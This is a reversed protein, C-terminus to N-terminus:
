DSFVSLYTHVLNEVEYLDEKTLQSLTVVHFLFLVLTHIVYFYSYFPFFQGFIHLPRQIFSV